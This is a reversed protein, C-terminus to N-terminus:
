VVNRKISLNNELDQSLKEVEKLNAKIENKVIVLNKNKNKIMLIKLKNKM